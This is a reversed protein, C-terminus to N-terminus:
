AGGGGAEKYLTLAEREGTAREAAAFARVHPWKDVSGYQRDALTLRKACTPCLWKVHGAVTPRIPAEDRSRLRPHNAGCIGCLPRSDM